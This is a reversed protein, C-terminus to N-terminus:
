MENKFRIFYKRYDNNFLLIGNIIISFKDILKILNQNYIKKIIYISLRNSNMMKNYFIM